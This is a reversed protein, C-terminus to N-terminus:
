QLDDPPLEHNRPAVSIWFIRQMDSHRCNMTNIDDYCPVKFMDIIRCCAILYSLGYFSM